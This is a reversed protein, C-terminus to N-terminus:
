RTEFNLSAKAIDTRKIHQDISEDNTGGNQPIVITNDSIIMCQSFLTTQNHIYRVSIDKAAPNKPSKWDFHEYNQSSKNTLVTRMRTEIRLCSPLM